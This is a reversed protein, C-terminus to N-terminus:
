VAYEGSAQRFSQAYLAEHFKVIRMILTSTVPDGLTVSITQLLGALERESREYLAACDGLRKEFASLADTISPMDILDSFGLNFEGHQLDKDIRTLMTDHQDLLAGLVTALTPSEQRQAERHLVALFKAREEASQRILNTGLDNLLRIMLAARYLAEYLSNDQIVREWNALPRVTECLIGIYYAFIPVVLIAHTSVAVRQDFTLPEGSLLTNVAEYRRIFGERVMPGVEYGRMADIVDVASEMNAVLLPWIAYEVDALALDPRTRLPM